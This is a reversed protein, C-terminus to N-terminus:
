LVGLLGIIAVVLGGASLVPGRSGGAHAVSTVTAMGSESTAVPGATTTAAAGNGPVAYEGTCYATYAALLSSM